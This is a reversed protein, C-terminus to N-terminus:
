GFVGTKDNGIVYSNTMHLAIDNHLYLLVHTRESRALLICIDCVQMHFITELQMEIRLVKLCDIALKRYDEAFSALDKTPLSSTRAHHSTKNIGNEEAHDYAKSSSKGLRIYVCLPIYTVLLHASFTNTNIM